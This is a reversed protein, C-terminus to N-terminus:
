NSKYLRINENWEIQHMDQLEEIGTKHWNQQNKMQLIGLRIGQVTLCMVADISRLLAYYTEDSLFNTFHVNFFANSFMPFYNPRIKGTMYM